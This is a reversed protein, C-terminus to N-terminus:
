SGKGKLGKVKKRNIGTSEPETEAGKYSIVSM